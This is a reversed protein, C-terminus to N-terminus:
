YPKIPMYQCESMRVGGAAAEASFSETEPPYQLFCLCTRFARWVPQRTVPLVRPGVWFADSGVSRLERLGPVIQGEWSLLVIDFYM